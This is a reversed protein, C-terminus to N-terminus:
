QKREGIRFSKRKGTKLFHIFSKLLESKGKDPSDKVFEIFKELNELTQPSVSHEMKCADELAIKPDINLIGALFCFLVNHRRLVDQAVKKGELTLEVYGYLEHEVLGKGSLNSLASTVSPAKVNLMRSIDKVRAVGNEKELVVIAELYDEMNSTLKKVKKASM